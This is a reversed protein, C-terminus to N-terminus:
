CFVTRTSVDGTDLSELTVTVDPSTPRCPIVAEDKQTVIIEIIEEQSEIVSLHQEDSIYIKLLDSIHRGGRKNYIFEGRLRM